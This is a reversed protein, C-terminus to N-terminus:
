TYHFPWGCHQCRYFEGEEDIADRPPDFSTQRGCKPCCVTKRKQEEISDKIMKYVKKNDQTTFSLAFICFIKWEQLLL